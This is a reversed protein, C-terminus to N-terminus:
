IRKIVNERENKYEEESIEGTEFKEKLLTLAKEPDTETIEAEKSAKIIAPLRNYKVLLFLAIIFFIISLSNALCNIIYLHYNHKIINEIGIFYIINVVDAMMGYVQLVLGIILPITIIKKNKGGSLSGIAMITFLIILIDDRADLFYHLSHLSPLYFLSLIFYGLSALAPLAFILPIVVKVRIDDRLKIVYLLLLVQALFFLVYYFLDSFRIDGYSLLVLFNVILFFLALASLVIIISKYKLPRRAQIDCQQNM